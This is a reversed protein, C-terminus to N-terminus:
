RHQQHIHHWRDALRLTSVLAIGAHNGYNDMNASIVVTATAAANTKKKRDGFATATSYAYYLGDSQRYILQRRSDPKMFVSGVGHYYHALQPKLTDTQRGM